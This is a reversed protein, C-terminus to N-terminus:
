YALKVYSLIRAEHVPPVADVSDIEIFTEGEILIDFRYEKSVEEGKYIPPLVVQNRANIVRLRFEHILSLEYVSELQGTGKHIAICADITDKALNDLAARDWKKGKM